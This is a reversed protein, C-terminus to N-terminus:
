QWTVDWRVHLLKFYDNTMEQRRIRHHARSADAAPDSPAPVAPGREQHTHEKLRSYALGWKMVHHCCRELLPLELACASKLGRSRDYKSIHEQGFCTVLGLGSDICSPSCLPTSVLLCSESDAKVM